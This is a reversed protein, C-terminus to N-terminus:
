RGEKCRVLEKLERVERGMTETVAKLEDKGRGYAATLDANDRERKEVQRGLKDAEAKWEAKM